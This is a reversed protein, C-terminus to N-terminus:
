QRQWINKKHIDQIVAFNDILINGETAANDAFIRYKLPMNQMFFNHNHETLGLWLMMVFVEQSPFVPFRLYHFFVMEGPKQTYHIKQCSLTKERAERTMLSRPISLEIGLHRAMINGKNRIHMRFSQFAQVGSKHSEILSKGYPSFRALEMNPFWNKRYVAVVENHEMPRSKGSVRYYYRKDNAQHPAQPSRLIEIIYAAKQIGEPQAEGDQYRGETEEHDQADNIIVEYVNYLSLRPTVMNQILDELWERTGGKLTTTVGNDLTGDDRVGIFIHGGQANAFASIQKCLSQTIESAIGGTRNELFASSKFEQFSHEANKLNILREKTWVASM